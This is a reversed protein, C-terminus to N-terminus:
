TTQICYDRGIIQYFQGSQVMRASTNAKEEEEEQEEETNKESCSPATVEREQVEM